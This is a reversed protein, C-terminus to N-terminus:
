LGRVVSLVQAARSPLGRSARVGHDKLFAAAGSVGERHALAKVINAKVHVLDDDKKFPAKRRLMERLVAAQLTTLKDDDDAAGAGADPKSAKGTAAAGAGSAARPPHGDPQLVALVQAVIDPVVAEPMPPPFPPARM